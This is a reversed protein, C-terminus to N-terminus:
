KLKAAFLCKAIETATRNVFVESEHPRQAHIVEHILTDVTNLYTLDNRVLITRKSYICLGWKRNPLGLRDVFKIRWEQGDILVTCDQM